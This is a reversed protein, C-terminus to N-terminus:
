QVAGAASNAAARRGSTEAVWIGGLVLAIAAAHYLHFTERLVLLSLLTGFIPVLNIFLSARNAGIMEVGRIYFVQALISPFFATYLVVGWGQADPMRTAGALWEGYAFPLSSIVAGLSLAAMLSQWHIAPRYRLAVTYIGYAVVGGFMMLDGVNFDLAVLRAFEGHSATVLVGVITILFGGVQGWTVRVRFLLFNATFVVLAVSAQEISLNIGSSFLAGGYLGVNFLTFGLAGLLMLLGANARIAPWDTQLRGVSFPLLMALALTWRLTTLMMPSVHGVALKGAVANGGWFLTTLLLLLYASRHSAPVRM